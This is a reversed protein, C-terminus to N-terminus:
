SPVELVVKGFQAGEDLHTLADQVRALPYVSDVVPRLGQEVAGLLAEFESVNGMTSGLLDLQGFFMRPMNVEARPGSTSGCFVIRGGPRAARFSQDLTAPGVHEFVVDAGAGTAGKVAKAFDESPFAAQAGLAVARQRKEESRSTALVRAGLHKGISIAAAAVGAGAGVVLMTDGPQLRARTVIMRWATLFTLPFAAAEPWSLGRPKPFVNEPAVHVFQCATGDTHEGIIGFGPAFVQQGAQSEASTWDCTVPYIVVEDGTQWRADSSEAVVGAGDAAIVRPPAIRQAGSALWLDLHNLSATRVQVVVEGPAAPTRPREEVRVGRPGEPEVFVAALGESKITSPM